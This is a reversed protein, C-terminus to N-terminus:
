KNKLIEIEAKLEQIAKVLLPVIKSYDVGQMEEADKEGTVAQPLIEQLEHAMVGYSRWGDSKWAYDYVPIKSVMDLGAFDKLDEKLRYDSVTNYVVNNAGNLVISGVSVSNNYLTLFNGTTGGVTGSNTILYGCTGTTKIYFGNAGTGYLTIGQTEKVTTGILVDGGNLYSTGNNRLVVNTTFSPYGGNYENATFSAINLTDIIRTYKNGSAGDNLMMGISQTGDSKEHGFAWFYGSGDSKFSDMRYYPYKVIMPGIQSYDTTIRLRQTNNPTGLITDGGLQLINVFASNRFYHNDADFFNQSNGNYGILMQANIVNSANRGEVHLKAAPAILGIGVNGTDDIVLRSGGHYFVLGDTPGYVESANDFIQWNGGLFMGNASGTGTMTFRGNTRVSGNVDLKAGPGTTGIGVKGNTFTAFIGNSDSVNLTPRADNAENMHLLMMGNGSGTTTAGRFEMAYGNNFAGTAATSFNRVQLIPVGGNEDTMQITGAANIRMRETTGNTRILVDTASDLYLIGGGANIRLTNTTDITKDGTLTVTGTSSIRMKEAYGPAGNRFIWGTGSPTQIFINGTQNDIVGGGASNLNIQPTTITGAFTSNGSSDITLRDAGATLDRLSFVGTNDAILGYEKGSANTNEIILRTGNTTDASSMHLLYSPDTTGVGVYGTTQEVVFKGNINSLNAM